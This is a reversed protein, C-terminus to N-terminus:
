LRFPLRERFSFGHFGVRPTFAMVRVAVTAGLGLQDVDTPTVRADVVLGDARPVIQMVVEGNAIVGGITHVALAHVTGTQPALLDTRKLQDQAAVVREKLEAIKGQCDRLERLVETRFDHDLQLIM